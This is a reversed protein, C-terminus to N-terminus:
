QAKCVASHRNNTDQHPAQGWTTPGTCNVVAATGGGCGKDCGDDGIDNGLEAVCAHGEDKWPEGRQSVTSKHAEDRRERDDERTTMSNRTTVKTQVNSPEEVRHVQQQGEREEEKWRAPPGLVSSNHGRKHDDTAKYWCIVEVKMASNARSTYKNSPGVCGWTAAFGMKARLTAATNAALATALSCANPLTCGRAGRRM